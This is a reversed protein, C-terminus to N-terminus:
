WILSAKLEKTTKRIRGVLIQCLNDMVRYGCAPDEAFLGRLEDAGVSFIEVPKVARASATRAESHFLVFEGFVSGPVAVHVPAQEAQGDLALTIEVRGDIVCYLHTGADGEAFIVDGVGHQKFEGIQGVAELQAEGLAAFLKIESLPHKKAM